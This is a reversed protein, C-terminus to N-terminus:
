ASVIRPLPLDHPEQPIAGCPVEQEAFAVGVVTADGRLRPLFADYNGGGYGLRAGDADFAVLPCVAFDVQEPEVHPFPLLEPADPAFLRLPRAVFPAAGSEFQERTVLRFEMLLRPTFAAPAATEAVTETTRGAAQERPTEAEAAHSTKAPSGDTEMKTWAPNAAAKAHATNAEAAAKAAAESNAEANAKARVENWAPNKVMCPFAVRAGHEYATRVFAALDIESGISSFVAVLPNEDAPFAELMGALETCARASKEARVDAGLADRRALVSQRLERKGQM